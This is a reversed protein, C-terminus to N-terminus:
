PCNGLDTDYGRVYATGASVKVALNSEVPTNGEDTVEDEKFIGGNGIEDNLSDETEVIFNEVAYNGSEDFTRKALADKILNYQSANQIKRIKGEEIKVLEIFNTDDNDTLQKKAATSIKFSRCWTCCLKYIGQTIM